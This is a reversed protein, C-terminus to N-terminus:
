PKPRERLHRLHRCEDCRDAHNEPNRIAKSSRTEYRGCLCRVVWMAQKSKVTYKGMVTFRGFTLGTLDVENRAPPKMPLPDSSHVQVIRKAPEYEFGKSTVLAATKNV